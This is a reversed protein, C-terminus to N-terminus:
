PELLRQLDCSLGESLDYAVRTEFSGDRRVARVTAVPVEICQM